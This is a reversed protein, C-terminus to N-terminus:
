AFSADGGAAEVRQGGEQSEGASGEGRAAALEKEFANNIARPSHCITNHEDWEKENDGNKSIQLASLGIALWTMFDVKLKPPM